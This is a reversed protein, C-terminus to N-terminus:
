KLITKMYYDYSQKDLKELFCNIQYLIILINPEYVNIHEKFINILKDRADHRKAYNILFDQINTSTM